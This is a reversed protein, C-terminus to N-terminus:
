TVVIATFAAPVASTCFADYNNMATMAMVAV